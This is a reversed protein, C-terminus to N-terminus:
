VSPSVNGTHEVASGAIIMHLAKRTYQSSVLCFHGDETENVKFFIYGSENLIANRKLNVRLVRGM